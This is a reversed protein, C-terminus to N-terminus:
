RPRHAKTREIAATIEEISRQLEAKTLAHNQSEGWDSQISTVFSTDGVDETSVAGAPIADSPDDVPPVEWFLGVATVNDSGPGAQSLAKEILGDVAREVPQHGMAHAIADDNVVGWLGDSCLLLRDAHHLVQAPAIEIVPMTSAGICTYLAHRNTSDARNPYREALSHDKTQSVIRGNRVLYCRSDGCHAWVVEGNQVLAAVLTTRPSEHMSKQRAYNLLNRHAELFAGIFFEQVDVVVPQAKNQYRSALSQLARHAAVEGEPHGGMGDALMLLASTKTYCYGMRDENKLRGGQRTSQYISFKM